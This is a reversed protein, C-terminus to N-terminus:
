NKSKSRPNQIEPRVLHEPPLSSIAERVRPQNPDIALSRTLLDRVRDPRDLCGEVIGAVNLTEPQNSSELPEIVDHAERCRNKRSLL